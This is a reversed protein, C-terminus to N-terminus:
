KDWYDLPSYIFVFTFLNATREKAFNWATRVDKIPKIAPINYENPPAMKSRTVVPETFQPVASANRASKPIGIKNPVKPNIIPITSAM